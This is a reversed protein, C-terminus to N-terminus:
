EAKEVQLSDNLMVKKGAEIKQKKGGKFILEAPESLVMGSPVGKKSLTLKGPKVKLVPYGKEKFTIKGSKKLNLGQVTEKASETTVCDETLPEAPDCGVSIIGNGFEHGAFVSVATFLGFIFLIVKM